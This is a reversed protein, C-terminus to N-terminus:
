SHNMTTTKAHHGYKQLVRILDETSQEDSLRKIKECMTLLKEVNQPIDEPNREFYKVFNIMTKSSLLQFEKKLNSLTQFLMWTSEIDNERLAKRM